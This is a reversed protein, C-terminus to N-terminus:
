PGSKKRKENCAERRIDLQLDFKLLLKRREKALYSLNRRAIWCKSITSVYDKM